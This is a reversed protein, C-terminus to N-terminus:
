GDMGGDMCENMWRDMWKRYGSRGYHTVPSSTGKELLRCTLPSTCGPCTALGDRSLVCSLSVGLPLKSLGILRITMNQVTPPLWLVWLSGVCARPSCAFEM